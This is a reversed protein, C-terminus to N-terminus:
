FVVVLVDLRYISASASESALTVVIASGSSENLCASFKVLFYFKYSNRRGWKVCVPSFM